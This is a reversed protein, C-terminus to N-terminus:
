PVSSAARIVGSALRSLSTGKTSWKAAHFSSGFTDRHIRCVTRSVGSPTASSIATGQLVLTPVGVEHPCQRPVPVQFRLSFREGGAPAVRM